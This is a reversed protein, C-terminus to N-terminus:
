KGGFTAPCGVLTARTANRACQRSFWFAFTSPPQLVGAIHSGTM